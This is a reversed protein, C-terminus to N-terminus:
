CNVIPFLIMSTELVFLKVDPIYKIFITASLSTIENRVFELINVKQEAMEKGYILEVICADAIQQIYHALLIVGSSRFGSCLFTLFIPINLFHTFLLADYGRQTQEIYRSMQIHQISRAFAKLFRDLNLIRVQDQGYRALPYLPQIFLRLRMLDAADLLATQYINQNAQKALKNHDTIPEPMTLFFPIAM